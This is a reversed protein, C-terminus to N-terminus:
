LNVVGTLDCTPCCLNSLTNPRDPSDLGCSQLKFHYNGYLASGLLNEKNPCVFRFGM